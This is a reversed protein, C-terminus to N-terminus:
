FLRGISFISMIIVGGKYQNHNSSLPINCYHCGNGKISMLKDAGQYHTLCASATDAAKLAACLSASIALLSDSFLSGVASFGKRGSKGSM